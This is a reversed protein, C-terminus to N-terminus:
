RFRLGGALWEVGDWIESIELRAKHSFAQYERLPLAPIPLATVFLRGWSSNGGQLICTQFTVHVKGNYFMSFIDQASYTINSSLDVYNEGESGSPLAQFRVLRNVVYYDVRGNGYIIRVEQGVKLNSFSVGALDNHALLGIVHNLAAERFQTVVGGMRLVFGPDDAPQQMVRMALVGPVYVGRVVDAQGDTVAAVFGSFAPFARDGAASASRLPVVLGVLLAFVLLTKQFHKNIM